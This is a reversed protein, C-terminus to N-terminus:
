LPQHAGQADMLSRPCNGQDGENSDNAKTHDSFEKKLIEWEEKVLKGQLIKCLSLRFRDRRHVKQCIIEGFSPDM